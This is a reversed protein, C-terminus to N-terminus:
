SGNSESASPTASGAASRVLDERHPPNGPRPPSAAGRSSWSCAASLLTCAVMVTGAITFSPIVLAPDAAKGSLGSLGASTLGSGIILLMIATGLSQASNFLVSRVGNAIGHRNAPVSAMIAAINPANFFGNGLGAILLAAVLLAKHPTQFYILTLSLGAAMVVSGAAALTRPSYRAAARGALPATCAVAIAFPIVSLGATAASAGVVTQQYLVIVIPITSQASSMFFVAAYAFGRSRERVMALDILPSSHRREVVVFAALAAASIAFSALVRPSGPGWLVIKNIAVLLALLFIISLVAGAPDFRERASRHAAGPRLIRAGWILGAVGFSVNLLFVSQWGFATVLVGGIAPGLTGAVSGAMVILGLGISLKHAPFADALQANINTIVAAAAAGQMIRMAILWTSDGAFACAISAITMVAVGTLYIRRRGILDSIRGFVLILVTNALMYSLLYWDAVGPGAHLDRAMSPLAVNASTTSAFVMLIGLTTVGLVKWAYQM